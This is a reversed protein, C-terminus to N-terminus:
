GKYGPGRVFRGPKAGTHEGDRIVPTGNVLVHKVGTAYQMPQEYTSRDSITQPDFVVIDAFYGPKLFGRRELRLTTAPLGSMRHVAEALSIIKEERVYKGLVRAFTGYARPHASAKLFVGEPASSEADSGICVWSLSIKRRVQEESMLFFVASVRSGDRLVLDMSTEAPNTGNRAAVEALSMGTLAKLSDNKLGVLKINEAGALYFFNEWGEGPENMERRLRERVKPDQLREVWAEFGGEQVWTPMVAYLGTEAATYPYIDATVPLGEARAAEVKAIAQELKDWNVQGAAKFHYIESRAGSRRAIELFEDLAELFRNGESRIHSIYIGGYQASVSALATLEETTSYSGPMYILASAVGLAGEAMARATIEKMRELEDPTPPRNEYGIVNVRPTAAGLFSAVNTSVGRRELYELFQGLTSWEIDYRIDGQRELKEQKMKENLPGMSEGEGMVELTVGQRLDSQSRGDAILADQAWSIVNIFGPSVALGTADIERAGKYSDGLQGIALISDGRLAIDAVVPEGGTGDYVTGGRIITDAKVQERSCSGILPLLLPLLSLFATSRM